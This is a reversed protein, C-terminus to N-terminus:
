LSRVMCLSYYGELSRVMALQWLCFLPRSCGVQLCTLAKLKSLMKWNSGLVGTDPAFVLEQLGTLRVLQEMQDGTVTAAQPATPTLMQVWGPAVYNPLQSSSNRQGMLLHLQRLHQRSTSGLRDLLNQLQLM